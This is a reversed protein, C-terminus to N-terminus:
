YLFTCKMEFVNRDLNKASMMLYNTRMIVRQVVVFQYIMFIRKSSSHRGEVTQSLIVLFLKSLSM